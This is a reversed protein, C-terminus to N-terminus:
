IEVDSIEWGIKASEKMQEMIMLIELEYDSCNLELKQKAARELSNFGKIELIIKNSRYIVNCDGIIAPEPFIEGHIVRSECRCKAAYTLLEHIDPAVFKLPLRRRGIKENLNKDTRDWGLHTYKDKKSISNFGSYQTLCKDAINHYMRLHGKEYKNYHRWIEFFNIEITNM